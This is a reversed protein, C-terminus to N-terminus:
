NERAEQLECFQFRQPAHKIEFKLPRVLQVHIPLEEELSTILKARSIEDDALNDRRSVAEEM